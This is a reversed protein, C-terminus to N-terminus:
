IKNLPFSELTIPIKSHGQGCIEACFGYFVGIKDLFNYSVNIFGPNTELKFNLSPIFWSHIVNDSLSFFLIERKFPLSLFNNVSNNRSYFFNKNFSIEDFLDIYSTINFNNIFSFSYKWFWQYGFIRIYILSIISNELIYIVNITSFFLILIFFTSSIILFIELAIRIFIKKLFSSLCLIFIIEM